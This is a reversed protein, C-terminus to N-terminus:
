SVEPLPVYRDQAMEAAYYLSAQIDEREIHYRVMQMIDMRYIHDGAFVAVLDPHHENMLYMNQYISDATGRYWSEGLRM